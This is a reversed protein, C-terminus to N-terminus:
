DLVAVSKVQIWLKTGPVLGLSDASRATLRVLLPTPGAEVRALRLAPHDDEVLADLTAPLVNLISTQQPPELAVSVDRALVRLRLRRGLPGGPDRLWLSGGPFEARILHWRADREAVRATLAVGADEQRRLPLDLRALTSTLPGSARVRGAELVVLHDALRAVEEPSHTVYVVPIDLEDRLRELYPLIETRSQLDLAALPEDMLLLRPSTLLARAVAVRQRQGGSLGAPKRDLLAGLGLWAVVEDFDVRRRAEPLRRHGYRLNGRVSLHPFLSAEQFVYALPRRHVPVFRTADQWVQGDVRLEGEAPELGAMCRLLTTKGSGSPGFLASVGRGPLALEVDLSFDPFRTRLSLELSASM